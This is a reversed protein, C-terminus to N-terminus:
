INQVDVALREWPEYGEVYVRGRNDRNVVSSKMYDPPSLVEAYWCMTGSDTGFFGSYAAEGVTIEFPAYAADNLEGSQHRIMSIVIEKNLYIRKM